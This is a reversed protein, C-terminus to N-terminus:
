RSQDKIIRAIHQGAVKWNLHEEYIDRAGARMQMRAGEDSFNGLISQSIESDRNTQTFLIGSIGNSVMEGLGGVDTVVSPVGFASAERIASRSTDALTPLIMYDSASFLDGLRRLDSPISKNIPRHWTVTPDNLVATPLNEPGCINLVSPQGLSILHKHISYARDGGKRMWDRGFFLLHCKAQRSKNLSEGDLIVNEINAGPLVAYTRESDVGYERVAVDVAWQSHYIRVAAGQAARRELDILNRVMREPWRDMYQGLHLLGVIPADAYFGYQLTQSPDVIVTSGNALVLDAKMGKSRRMVERAHRQFLTTETAARYEERKAHHWTKKLGFVVKEHATFGQTSIPPVKLDNDILATRIYFGNNECKPSLSDGHTAYLIRVM